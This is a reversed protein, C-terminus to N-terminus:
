TDGSSEGYKEKVSAEIEKNEIIEDVQFFSDAQPLYLKKSMSFKDEAGNHMIFSVDAFPKRQFPMKM